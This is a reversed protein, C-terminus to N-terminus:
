RMPGISVEHARWSNGAPEYEMTASYVNRLMVGFANQADVEGLVEWMCNGIFRTAIPQGAFRASSPALLHRRVARQSMVFAYTKDGCPTMDTRVPAADEGYNGHEAFYRERQELSDQRLKEHEQRLAQFEAERQIRRHEAAEARRQQEQKAADAQQQRSQAERQTRVNERDNGMAPRVELPVDGAACPRDAFVTEGGEVCKYVQAHAASAALLGAALLIHRKM